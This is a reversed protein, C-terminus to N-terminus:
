REDNDYFVDKAQDPDLWSVFPLRVKLLLRIIVENGLHKVLKLEKHLILFDECCLRFLLFFGLRRCGKSLFEYSSDDVVNLYADSVDVEPKLIFHTTHVM